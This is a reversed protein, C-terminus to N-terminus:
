LAINGGIVATEVSCGSMYSDVTTIIEISQEHYVTNDAVSWRAFATPLSKTM